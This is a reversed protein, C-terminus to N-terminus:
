IGLGVTRRHMTRLTNQAETSFVTSDLATGDASTCLKARMVTGLPIISGLLSTGFANLKTLQGASVFGDTYASTPIGGLQIRGIGKRGPLLSRKTISAAVNATGADDDIQGTTTLVENWFTSRAPYIQQTRVNQYEVDEVQCAQMLDCPKGVAPDAFYTALASLDQQVSTAPDPVTIVARLVTMLRQDFLTSNYTITVVSGTALGM